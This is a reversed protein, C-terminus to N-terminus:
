SICSVSLSHQGSLLPNLDFSVQSVRSHLASAEQPVYLQTRFYDLSIIEPKLAARQRFLM